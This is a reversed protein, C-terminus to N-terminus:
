ILPPPPSHPSHPSPSSVSMTPLTTRIFWTATSVAGTRCLCLSLTLSPVYGLSVSLSLPRFFVLLPLWSSLLLLLASLGVFRSLTLFLSLSLSYSFSRVEAGDVVMDCVYQVHLTSGYLDLLSSLSTKRVELCLLQLAFSVCLCLSLSLSLVPPQPNAQGLDKRKPGNEGSDGRRGPNLCVEGRAAAGSLDVVGLEPLLPLPPPSISFSEFSFSVASNSRVDLLSLSVFLSLSLSLVLLSLSLSLSVSLSCLTTYPLSLADSKRLM